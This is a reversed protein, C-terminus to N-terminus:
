AGQTPPQATEIATTRQQAVVKGDADTFDTRMVVFTMTGGRKGDKEYIEEVEMRAHLKQGARPPGSPFVYEQEGHLLRFPDLDVDRMLDNAEPPQWFVSSTLFTPPIVPEEEELYWPSRSGTALGFERVKGREIVMTFEPGSRGVVDKNAM